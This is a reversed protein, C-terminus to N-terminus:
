NLDFILAFLPLDSFIFGTLCATLILDKCIFQNRLDFSTEDFGPGLVAFGVLSLTMDRFQPTGGM